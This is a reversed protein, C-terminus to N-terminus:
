RRRMLWGSLRRWGGVLYLEALCAFGGGAVAIAIPNLTVVAWVAALAVAVNAWAPVTVDHGVHVRFRNSDVPDILLVVRCRGGGLSIPVPHEPIWRRRINFKESGGGVSVVPNGDAPDFDLVFPVSSEIALRMKRPCEDLRRALEVFYGAVEKPFANEERIWIHVPLRM